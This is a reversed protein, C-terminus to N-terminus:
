RVVFSVSTSLQKLGLGDTVYAQAHLPIGKLDTFLSNIHLPFSVTGDPPMTGGALPFLFSLDLLLGNVPNIKQYLSYFIIFQYGPEAHLIPEIYTGLQGPGALTMVPVSPVVEEILSGYKNVIEPEGHADFAVGSYFVTSEFAVVCSGHEGFYNYTWGGVGGEILHDETGFLYLDCYELCISDGGDGPWSRADGKEYYDGGRGGECCSSHFYVTSYDALMGPGGNEGPEYYFGFGGYSGKFSSESIVVTSNSIRVAEYTGVPSAPFFYKCRSVTVLSCDVIDLISDYVYSHNTCQDFIIKGESSRLRVRCTSFGSVVATLGPQIFSVTMNDSLVPECGTDAAITLGKKLTFGQYTGDRVLILDYDSAAVIAPPIDTFDVGPGGDDDVIWTTGTAPVGILLFSLCSLMFYSSVILRRWNSM